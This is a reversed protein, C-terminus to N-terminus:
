RILAIPSRQVQLVSTRERVRHEQHQPGQGQPGMRLEGQRVSTGAGQLDEEAERCRGPRLKRQVFGQRSVRHTRPLHRVDEAMMQEPTSSIYHDRLMSVGAFVAVIIMLLVKIFTLSDFEMDSIMEMGGADIGEMDFIVANGFLGMSGFIVLVSALLILGYFLTTLVAGTARVRECSALFVSNRRREEMIWSYKVFALMDVDSVKKDVNCRDNMFHSNWAMMAARVWFTDNRKHDYFTMPLADEIGLLSLNYRVRLYKALCRSEVFRNFTDRKMHFWLLTQGLFVAIVYAALILLSTGTLMFFSLLFTAMVTIVSSIFFVIHSKSKLDKTMTSLAYFRMATADAMRMRHVTEITKATSQEEKKANNFDRAYTCEGPYRYNLTNRDLIWTSDDGKAGYSYAKDLISDESCRHILVSKDEVAGIDANFKDIRGFIQNYYEPM